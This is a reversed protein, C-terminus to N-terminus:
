RTFPGRCFGKKKEAETMDYVTQAERPAGSQMLEDIAKVAAQGLFSQLDVQEAQSIERFVGSRAIDGGM